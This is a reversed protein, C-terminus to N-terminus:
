PCCFLLFEMLVASGGWTKACGRSTVGLGKQAVGRLTSLHSPALHCAPTVGPTGQTGHLGHKLGAQAGGGGWSFPLHKEGSLFFKFIM